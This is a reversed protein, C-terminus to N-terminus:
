KAQEAKVREEVEKRLKADEEKVSEPLEGFDEIEAIRRIEITSGEETFPVKRVWNLAEEFDKVKIVWFGAVLDQVPFPGSVVDPPESKSAHFVVRASDRSSALLGEGAMLVGAALMEQNFEGMAQLMEVPPPVGAESKANAKVLLM